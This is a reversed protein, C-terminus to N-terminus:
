FPSSRPFVGQREDIWNESVLAIPIKPDTWKKNSFELLYRIERPNGHPVSFLFSFTTSSTKEDNLLSQLPQAIPFAEMQIFKKFSENLQTTAYDKGDTGQNIMVDALPQLKVVWNHMNSQLNSEFPSHASGSYIVCTRDGHPGGSGITWKRFMRDKQVDNKWIENHEDLVYVVPRHKYSKLAM